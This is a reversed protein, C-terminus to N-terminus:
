EIAMQKKRSRVFFLLLQCVCMTEGDLFFIQSRVIKNVHLKGQLGKKWKANESLQLTWELETGEINAM